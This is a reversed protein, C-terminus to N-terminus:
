PKGAKMAQEFTINKTEAAPANEISEIMRDWPGAFRGPGPHMERLKPLYPKAAAGYKPLVDLVLRVKFGFKGTDEDFLAFAADIGGEIGLNAYLTMAGNRPDLNHYSHYGPNRDALVAAVEAGVRHFDEVPLNAILSMGSSRGSARPHRLLRDVAQYFLDKDTVLGAAFPDPALTTLSRGLDDNLLELPDGPKEKIILRLIDAHVAHAPDGLHALSSAAAARLSAPEAPDRLLKALDPMAALASEPPCGHGFYRIASDRAFDTGEFIMRRITPLLDHDRGRLTWYSELRIKPMPHGFNELLAEDTAQKADFRALAIAARAEDRDLWLSEDPERGTIFLARRHLTHNILHAGAASLNRYSYNAGPSESGDYTFDGNWKRNLIALWRTERFFAATAELGAVHVGPGTWLQNFFHGTHGTEMGLHSAASMRSFFEAGDPNPRVAFAVAALGSMGNNNFSRINPNHVGYPLTGRGVFSAFYTHTQAIAALVEPHRVGAKEALLLALFCPLSSQNMQAYGPLRGNPRGDNLDLSAFGHGWLGGADRGKALAVAYAELAPLVYDDGTLLFYEALFIGTYGWDWATRAYREISLTLDPSAWAAARVENKVFEIYSEEGTALLGLLALPIGQRGFDKTAVLHDAARTIITRTKPCDFPATDSYSGIAPLPIDVTSGDKRTLTLVGGAEAADIAAAFRRRTDGEFPAGGAATIIDGPQLKGDAPSGPDIKVIRIEDPSTVGYIGTPGLHREKHEHLRDASASVALMLSAAVTIRLAHRHRLPGRTTPNSINMTHRTPKGKHM